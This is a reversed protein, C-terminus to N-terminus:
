HVKVAKKNSWAGYSINNGSGNYARVKVYYKRGSKLKKITRSIKKKGKVTYVKKGKTMKKNKAIM